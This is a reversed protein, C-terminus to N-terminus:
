WVQCPSLPCLPREQVELINPELAYNQQEPAGFMQPYSSGMVSLGGDSQFGGISDGPIKICSGTSLDM